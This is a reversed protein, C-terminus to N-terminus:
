ENKLKYERDAIRKTTLTDIKQLVDPAILMLIPRTNYFATPIIKTNSEYFILLKQAFMAKEQASPQETIPAYSSAISACLADELSAKLYDSDPYREHAKLLADIGPISYRRGFQHASRFNILTGFNDKESSWDINEISTIMEAFLKDTQSYDYQKNLQMESLNQNLHFSMETLELKQSDNPKDAESSSASYEPYDQYFFGKESKNTKQRHKNKGIGALIMEGNQLKLVIVYEGVRDFKAIPSPIERVGASFLLDYDGDSMAIVPKWNYAAKANEASIFISLILVLVTEFILYKRM